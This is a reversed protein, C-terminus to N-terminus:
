SLNHFQPVTYWTNPMKSRAPIEHLWMSQHEFPREGGGYFEVFLRSGGGNVSMTWGAPARGVSTDHRGTRPRPIDDDDTAGM